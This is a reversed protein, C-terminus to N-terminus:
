ATPPNLYAPLIINRDTIVSRLQEHTLNIATSLDTIDPTVYPNANRIVDCFIAGNLNAGKFDTAQFTVNFASLIEVITWHYKRPSDIAIQELAYIGGLRVDIKDSGLHEISKSFRETVQKGETVELSKQGVKLNEEGIKFNCYGVFATISLIAGGIVQVLPPYIANQLTTTDKELILIDKKLELGDEIKFLENSSLNRAIEEKSIEIKYELLNVNNQQSNWLIIGVLLALLLITLVVFGQQEWLRCLKLGWLRYIHKDPKEM